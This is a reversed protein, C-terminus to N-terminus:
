RDLGVDDRDPLPEAGAVRREGGHEAPLVHVVGDIGARTLEVESVGPVAGREGRGDTERDELQEDLSAEHRADVIASRAQLILQLGRERAGLDHPLHSPLSEEESHLEDIRAVALREQGTSSSAADSTSSTANSCSSRTM